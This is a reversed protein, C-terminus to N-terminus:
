SRTCHAYRPWAETFTLYVVQLPSSDVLVGAAAMAKTAQGFETLM